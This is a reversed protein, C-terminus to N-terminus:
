SVLMCKETPPIKGVKYFNYEKINKFKKNYNAIELTKM